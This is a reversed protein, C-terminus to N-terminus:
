AMKSESATHEMTKWGIQCVAALAHGQDACCRVVGLLMM